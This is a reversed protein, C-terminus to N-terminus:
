KRLFASPATHRALNAQQPREWRGGVGGCCGVGISDRQRARSLRADEGRGEWREGAGGRGGTDGRLSEWAGQSMGEPADEAKPHADGDRGQAAAM